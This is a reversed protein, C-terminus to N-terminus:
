RRIMIINNSLGIHGTEFGSEPPTPKDINPLRNLFPNLIFDEKSTAVAWWPRIDHLPDTRIKCRLVVKGDSYEKKRPFM